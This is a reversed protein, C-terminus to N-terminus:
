TRTIFGSGLSSLAEIVTEARGEFEERPVILAPPQAVENPAAGVGTITPDPEVARYFERRPTTVTSSREINRVAEAIQAIDEDTLSSAEEGAVAKIAEDMAKGQFHSVGNNVLTTVIILALASLREKTVLGRLGAVIRLSGPASYQYVLSFEVGPEMLYVAEGAMKEFQVMAKGVAGVTPRADPSLDFYITLPQEIM